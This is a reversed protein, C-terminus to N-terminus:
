HGTTSLSVTHISDSVGSTMNQMLTPFNQQFYISQNMLRNREDIQEKADLTQQAAQAALIQNTDQQSHIQLMTASNIKGLLANSTQQSPDTSYTDSELNALKQQFTQSDSRITGLMSLSNTLTAQGLESSAYQNKIVTQTTADQSSLGSGPYSQLPIVAANYASTARTPNGLDLANIWASTNGYTNPASVSSFNTWMAFDSKYRAALNQPMKSMQYALNYAAIVQNMTKYATTYIQEATQLSQSGQEIQQIAHASQTPDYVIGSGFQAHAVPALSLTLFVLPLFSKLPKM